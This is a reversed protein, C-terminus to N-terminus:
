NGSAPMFNGRLSQPVLGAIHEMIQRATSGDIEAQDKRSDKAIKFADGFHVCLSGHEEYVGVPIFELGLDGLLISFRGIGAPPHTLTQRPNDGGEPALGIIPTRSQHVVRLVARVSATRTYVEKERPPMPPMTTFGFMGAARNLISRSLPRGLFGYWKGPFTLENTIIWHIEAPFAASVALALWEAHFGQRHYHNVTLVCPRSGLNKAQGLVVLPPDMQRICELALQRFSRRRGLLGDMILGLIIQVPIRYAPLDM